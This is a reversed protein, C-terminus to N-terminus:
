GWKMGVSVSAGRPCAMRGLVSGARPATLHFWTQRLEGEQGRHWVAPVTHPPAHLAPDEQCAQRGGRRGAGREGARQQGGACRGRQDVSVKSRGEAQSGRGLPPRRVVGEPPKPVLEALVPLRQGSTITSVQTQPVPFAQRSFGMLHPLRPPPRKGDDSLEARPDPSSGVRTPEAMKVWESPPGTPGSSSLASSGNAGWIPPRTLASSPRPSGVWQTVAEPM